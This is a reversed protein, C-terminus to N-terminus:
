GAKLLASVVAMVRDRDPKPMQIVMADISEGMLPDRGILDSPECQYVDALACLVPESYPQHGNELRSISPKSLEAGLAELRRLVEDQTLDRFQRWEKLFTRRKRFSNSGFRPPM